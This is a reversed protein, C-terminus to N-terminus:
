RMGALDAHDDDELDGGNTPVDMYAGSFSGRSSPHVAVMQIADDTGSGDMDHGRTRAAAPAIRGGSLGPADTHLMAETMQSPPQAMRFFRKIHNREFTVFWGPPRDARVGVNLLDDGEDDETVHVAIRLRELMVTTSGGFVIVTIVVLMLTTTVMIPGQVGGVQMALAFAIAGRLGAGM